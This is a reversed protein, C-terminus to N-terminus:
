QNEALKNNIYAILDELVWQDDASVAQGNDIKYVATNSNVSIYDGPDVITTPGFDKILFFVYDHAVEYAPQSAGEWRVFDNEGTFSRIRIIKDQFDGKLVQDIKILHDTFLGGDRLVDKPTVNKAEKQYELKWKSPLKTNVRGVIILESQQIKEDITMERISANESFVVPEKRNYNKALLLYSATLDAIALLLVNIKKMKM